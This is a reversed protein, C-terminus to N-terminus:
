ALASEYTVIKEADIGRKILEMKVEDAVEQNLIAIVVQEFEAELLQDVMSLCAFQGSLEDYNKDVWLVIEHSMDLSLEQYLTQGFKGAGYIAVKRKLRDIPFGYLRQWVKKEEQTIRMRSLEFNYGKYRNYAKRYGDRAYLLRVSEADLKPAYPLAKQERGSFKYPMDGMYSLLEEDANEAMYKRYCLSLATEHLRDSVYKGSATFGKMFDRVGAIYDELGYSLVAECETDLVPEVRGDANKRYGTTHGHPATYFLEMLGAGKMDSPFYCMYQCNESDLNDDMHYFFTRVPYSCIEELLYSLSRQTYGSGILEVFAFYEDSVDIQQKLYEMLLIRKGKQKELIYDRFEDNKELKLVLEKLQGVEFKQSEVFSGDTLFHLLEEQTIEFLEALKDLACLQEMSGWRIMLSIDFHKKSFAPLRWARRSGYIYSTQIEYANQEIIWDAMEKLLYGDRAIFYLRKIGKEVSRQVLWCVYSFAINGGLATGYIYSVSEKETGLRANASAGVALQFFVDEERNKLAAEECAILSKQKLPMVTIGLKEPVQKDSYPNDGIHIWKETRIKEKDQVYSFLNGTVKNKMCDSSVYLPISEFVSDVKVLMKRITASDLYMDSILLIEEGREYLDRLYSINKEIGVVLEIETDRELSALMKREQSSLCATRGMAEYIQELTVDEIEDSGFYVRAAQESGIRLVYFNERIYSSIGAYKVDEKLVKQMYAFVGQPTATKRTILTDFVDFSYVM